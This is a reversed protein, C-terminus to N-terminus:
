NPGTFAQNKDHRPEDEDFRLVVLANIGLGKQIWGCDVMNALLEV